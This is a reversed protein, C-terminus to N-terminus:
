DAAFDRNQPGKRRFLRCPWPGKAGVPRYVINAPVHLDILTGRQISSHIRLEGRM